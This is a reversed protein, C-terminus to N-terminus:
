SKKKPYITGQPPKWTPAPVNQPDARWRDLDSLAGPRLEIVVKSCDDFSQEVGNSLTIILHKLVGPAIDKICSGDVRMMLRGNSVLSRIKDTIDEKAHAGNDNKTQYIASLIQIEGGGGGGLKLADFSEGENRTLKRGNSLSVVLMKAIGPCPDGGLTGNNVALTLTQCNVAARVIDTVDRGQSEDSRSAYMAKTIYVTLKSHVGQEEVVNIAQESASASCGSGM